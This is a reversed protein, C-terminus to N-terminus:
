CAGTDFPLLALHDPRIQTKSSTFKEVTNTKPNRWEGPINDVITFYGTSVELDEGAQLKRLVENGGPVEAAKEIDIWLEGSIGQIDDRAVVNFFTGIVSEQMVKPSNATVPKGDDGLPHDIPLPRGSWMEPFVTLDEYSVYEHNHVGEVLAVVPSVIYDRGNLKGNRLLDKRTELVAIRTRLVSNSAVKKDKWQGMCVAVRQKHSDFEGEVADMCRSMFDSKKEGAHPMPIPM